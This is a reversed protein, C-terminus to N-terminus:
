GGILGTYVERWNAPHLIKDAEGLRKRMGGTRTERPRDDKSKGM